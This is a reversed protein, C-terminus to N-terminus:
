SRGYNDEYRVIDDEELYTGTQVEIIILPKTKKNELRHIAGLPIYVSDGKKCNFVENNLNITAIGEVVVWHESRYKHSQLSISSKPYLLIKKVKYFQTSTLIEFWGWPRYDKLFQESQNIKKKKLIEVLNGVEQTADKKTILVSDKTTVAIINDLGIGALHTEDSFNKLLTNKCNLSTVNQKKVQKNKTKELVANWDGLDSWEQNFHAVKLKKIKELIAYDISISKCRKWHYKDLRFFSLDKRGEQLALSVTEFIDKQHTIFANVLDKARFLIIGSNWLFNQTKLMKKAVEIEPKEVFQLIDSTKKNSIKTEIYGFGTEPRDPKIGFIVINGKDLELCGRKIVEHFKNINKILHDTPLMLLISDPNKKHLHLSAALISPATNKSYPELFIKTFKHKLKEMQELVIFRYDQHTVILPDNFKIKKSSKVRILTDQFLTKDSFYSHFQKPFSKRSVPWLRKGVGGCMLIPTIKTM